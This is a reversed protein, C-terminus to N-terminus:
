DNIDIDYWDTDTNEPTTYWWLEDHILLFWWLDNLVLKHILTELILKQIDRPLPISQLIAFITKESLFRTYFTM